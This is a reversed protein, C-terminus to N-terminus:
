QTIVKLSEKDDGTVGFHMFMDEKGKPAKLFNKERHNIVWLSTGDTLFEHEGAITKIVNRFWNNKRTFRVDFRVTGVANERTIQYQLDYVKEDLRYHRSVGEDSGCLVLALCAMSVM